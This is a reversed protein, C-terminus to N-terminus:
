IKIWKDLFDKRITEFHLVKYKILAIYIAIGLVISVFITAAIYQYTGANEYIMKFDSQHFSQIFNILIDGIPLLLLYKIIKHKNIFYVTILLVLTDFIYPAILFITQSYSSLTGIEPCSVMRWSIDPHLGYIICALAHVLEHIITTASLLLAALAIIFIVFSVYLIKLKNKM